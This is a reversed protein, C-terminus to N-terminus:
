DGAEFVHSPVPVSIKAKQPREGRDDIGIHLETELRPKLHATIIGGGWTLTSLREANPCWAMPASAMALALSALNGQARAWDVAARTDTELSARTHPSPKHKM